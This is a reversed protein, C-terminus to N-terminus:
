EHSSTSNLHSRPVFTVPFARYGPRRLILILTAKQAWLDSAKSPPPLPTSPAGKKFPNFGKRYESTLKQIMITELVSLPTVEENMAGTRLLGCLRPPVEPASFIGKSAAVAPAPGTFPGYVLM